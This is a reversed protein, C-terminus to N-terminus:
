EIVKDARVLISEPVKIGLAKAATLNVFLKYKTPQESLLDGAKEGKFIRDVYVAARQFMPILDAGYSILGGAEVDEHYPYIAPLHHLAAMKALHAAENYTQPDPTHLLADVREAAVRAYAQESDQRGHWEIPVLTIGLREAASKLNPWDPAYTSYASNWFVAVRSASPVLLKLLGLEKSTLGPV